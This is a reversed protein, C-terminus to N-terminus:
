TGKCFSRPTAISSRVAASGAATAAARRGFIARILEAKRMSLLYDGELVLFRALFTALHKMVVETSKIEEALRRAREELQAMADNPTLHILFNVSAMFTSPERLPVAIM